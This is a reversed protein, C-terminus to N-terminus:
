HGDQWVLVVDNEVNGGGLEAIGGDSTSMAADSIAVSLHVAAREPTFSTVTVATPEFDMMLFRGGRQDVLDIARVASACTACQPTSLEEIWAPDGSTYGYEYSAVFYRAAEAAGEADRRAVPATPPPGPAPLEEHAQVTQAVHEM